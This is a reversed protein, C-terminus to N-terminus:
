RLGRLFDVAIPVATASSKGGDEVFVAFAVDGQWGITWTHSHDPNDDYEATGTKARVPGGPVNALATATGETVVLRMATHLAAVSGQKLATGDAVTPGEAPPPAGAPPEVLLTPRRWAGRAVAATAAALAAPSVQTRGQGFAAAAADVPEGGPPVSGTFTETGLNWSTGIGVSAAARTLGDDGLKPALSAFATNCSRAFNRRFPVTGLSFGGSNRFSRGGVTFTKPCNVPTDLTVAGADFLGLASVMKFTSGPPVSATLALNVEGGDPGNAVALVRGDRVSVAVLATRRRERALASDASRQVDAVLTTRLATGAKPESRFVETDPTTGDDETPSGDDAVAGGRVVVRVGPVGRLAEDYQEQLGSRGVQDGVVYRGPSADMQEKTVDGVTGLLARAFERTPALQLEDERFVTGDLDYILPRIRTYVERRLTVVPVFADRDAAEMRAPLDDLSIRLDQSRLARDLTDILQRRDTVRRPEVGVHVVPRPKVIAEGAADLISGRTPEVRTMVLSAGARLEPHVVTPTWVVRWTGDTRQLRVITGYTWTVSATVGWAVEVEATATDGSEKIGKTTFSLRETPLKGSLAALQEAVEGPGVPGGEAALFEVSGFTRKPWGALFAALADAPGPEDSCAALGALACVAATLAAALRRRM